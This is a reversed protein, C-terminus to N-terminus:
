DPLVSSHHEIIQWEGANKRYVFTFRAAVDVRQGNDTVEFTYLGSNIAVDDFIRINEEDIRGVPEKALFHVFYDRIEAHNHRVKASVTPLLIADEAYCSVVNDPSGTLLAQNWKEFQTSIIKADNMSPGGKNIKWEMNASGRQRDLNFARMVTLIAQCAKNGLCVIHCM